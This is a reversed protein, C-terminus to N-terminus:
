RKRRRVMLLAGGFILALAAPAGSSGVNNNSCGKFLGGGAVGAGGLGDDECADGIGDEDEDEQGPNAVNVCNDESDIVGDGDSDEPEAEECTGEECVNSACQANDDCAGGDEILCESNCGDGADTNGDDCGEGNNLVGDGCIAQVCIGDECNGSACEANAGCAGDDEILCESNCGDDDDRNSDDCGEDADVIGDGCYSAECINDFPNCVGEACGEDSDCAFGEEILCNSNCGDGNADNGDDCFEGADVNGDGCFAVVLPVCVGDDGCDGSVCDADDACARGDEVLCAENCGDGNQRNGDDCAEGLDVVGNGCFVFVCLNNDDDCTGSTCAADGTLGPAAGCASGVEALCRSSCGDGDDSNGDDCAENADVVGDGCTSAGCLGDDACVGSDCLVGETCAIGDEILCSATCGDGTFINGDDCGEGADVVGDGCGAGCVNAGSNCVGSVCAAAGILAGTGCQGGDEVLCAASCGDGDLANGDDCGETGDVIGDGCFAECLGTEFNCNGNLCAADGSEGTSGCANGSEVLCNAACGDGPTFNGDDCGELFEVVGDGCTAFICNSYPSSDILVGGPQGGSQQVEITVTNTGPSFGSTLNVTFAPARFFNVTGGNLGQAVGNLYVEVVFNDAYVDFSVSANAADSVNFTNSFYALEALAFTDCGGPKTIWGAEAQAEEWIGSCRDTTEAPVQLGGLTTAYTWNDDQVGFDSLAGNAFASNLDVDQCAFEPETQCFFDCGDFDQLNGDDCQEGADLTGNGCLRAACLGADTCIGSNCSEGLTLAVTGCPVGAEILCQNDCGDGNTLNGDDCGEDADVNGDGCGPGCINSAPNCAGSACAAAGTVGSTGCQQGDEALCAADCGDGASTNGDDCGESGEVVGNGCLEVCVDNQCNQSQCDPADACAGDIEVLCNLDCGDGSDTNGDDCGEDADVTGNGCAPASCDEAAAADFMFGGPQGGSQEVKFTITNTGAVFGSLSVALPPARFLNTPFSDIGQAAGNVYVERVFNDAYVDGAITVAADSLTFTITYYEAETIAYPQCDESKSVWGAGPLDRAWIGHCPGSYIAPSQTGGLTNSITWRPDADGISLLAGAGDTASSLDVNVCSESLCTDTDPDCFGGACGADGVLGAADANCTEGDEILCTPDCGDGSANNGDDCGEGVDLTGDGCNGAVICVNTGADCLGSACSDNGLAGAM